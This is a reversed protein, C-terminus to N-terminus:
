LEGKLILERNKLVTEMNNFKTNTALWRSELKHDYPYQEPLQYKEEEMFQKVSKGNEKLAENIYTIIFKFSDEIEKFSITPHFHRFEISGSTWVSYLNLAYRKTTAWYVRGDSCKAHGERFEKINIAAMCYDYRLKPMVKVDFTRFSRTNRGMEPTIDFKWYNDLVYQGNGEYTYKLIKKLSDLDDKIGEWAIHLHMVSKHNVEAEPFAYFLEKVSNMMEQLSYSPYSNFEYGLNYDKAASVGNSNVIDPDFTNYWKKPLPKNNQTDALELECGLSYEKQNM